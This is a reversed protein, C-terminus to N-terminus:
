SNARPEITVVKLRLNRDGEANNIDNVFSLTIWHLGPSAGDLRLIQTEDGSFELLGARVGDVKVELQAPPPGTAEGQVHLEIGGTHLITVPGWISSNRTFRVASGDPTRIPWNSLWDAIPLAIQASHMVTVPPCAPIENAPEAPAKNSVARDVNKQYCAFRAHARDDVLSIAPADSLREGATRFSDATQGAIRSQRLFLDNYSVLYQNRRWVDLLSDGRLLLVTLMLGLLSILLFRSLLANTFGSPARNLQRM